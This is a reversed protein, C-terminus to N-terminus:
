SRSLKVTRGRGGKLTEIEETLREIESYAKELSTEIENKEEDNGGVENELDKIQRALDAVFEDRNDFGDLELTRRGGGGFAYEPDAARVETVSTKTDPDLLRLADILDRVTPGALRARSLRRPGFRYLDGDDDLSFMSM